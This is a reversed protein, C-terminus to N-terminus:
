RHTCDGHMCVQMRLPPCASKNGTKKYQITLNITATFCCIYAPHTCRNRNSELAVYMYVCKINEQQCVLCTSVRWTHECIFQTILGSEVLLVDFSRQVTQAEKVVVPYKLLGVRVSACVACASCECSHM